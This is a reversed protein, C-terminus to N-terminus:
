RMIQVDRWKASYIVDTHHFFYILLCMVLDYITGTKVPKSLFFFIWFFFIVQLPNWSFYWCLICKNCSKEIRGREFTFCFIVWECEDLVWVCTILRSDSNGNPQSNYTKCGSNGVRLWLLYEKYLFILPEMRM